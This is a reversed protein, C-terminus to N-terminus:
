ELGCSRRFKEYRQRLQRLKKKNAQNKIEEQDKRNKYANYVDNTKDKSVPTDDDSIVIVDETNKDENIVLVDYKDKHNNVQNNYENRTIYNGRKHVEGINCSQNLNHLKNGTDSNRGTTVNTTNTKNTYVPVNSNCLSYRKKSMTEQEMAERARRRKRKQSSTLKEHVVTINNTSNARNTASFSKLLSIPNIVSKTCNDTLTLDEVNTEVMVGKNVTNEDGYSSKTSSINTKSNSILNNGTITHKSHSFTLSESTRLSDETKIDFKKVDFSMNNSDGVTNSTNKDNSAANISLSLKLDKYEHVNTLSNFESKLVEKDDSILKDSPKFTNKSAKSFKGIRGNNINVDVSLIANPWPKLKRVHRVLWLKSEIDACKVEIYNHRFSWRIIKPRKSKEMLVADKILCCRIINMQRKDLSNIKDRINIIIEREKSAQQQPKSVNTNLAEWSLRSNMAQTETKKKQLNKARIKKKMIEHEKWKRRNVDKLYSKVKNLDSVNHKVFKLMEEPNMEALQKAIDDALGKAMLKRVRKRCSRPRRKRVTKRKSGESPEVKTDVDVSSIEIIDQKVDVISEQNVVSKHNESKVSADKEDVLTEIKVLSEQNKLNVNKNKEGQNQGQNYGGTNNYTQNYGGYSQNHGGQNQSYGGQNQHGQNQHGQNNYGQNYGGPPVEYTQYNRQNQNFAAPSTQARFFM